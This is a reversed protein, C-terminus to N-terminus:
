RAPSTAVAPLDADASWAPATQWLALALLVPALPAFSRQRGHIRAIRM